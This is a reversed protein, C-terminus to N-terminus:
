EVFFFDSFFGLFILLFMCFGDTYLADDCVEIWFIQDFPKQQVHCCTVFFSRLKFIGNVVEGLGNFSWFGRVEHAHSLAQQLREPDRAAMAEEVKAFLVHFLDFFM